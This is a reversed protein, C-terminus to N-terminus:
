LITGLGAPEADDQILTEGHGTNFVLAVTDESTLMYWLWKPSKQTQKNTQKSVSKRFLGLQGWGWLVRTAETKWPSADCLQAVIVHHPSPDEREQGQCLAWSGGTTHTGDTKEHTENPEEQKDFHRLSGQKQHGQCDVISYCKRMRSKESPKRM